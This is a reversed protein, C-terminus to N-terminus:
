ARIKGINEEWNQTEKYPKPKEMFATIDKHVGGLEDNVWAAEYYNGREGDYFKHNLSFYVLRVYNGITVLYEKNEKPINEPYSLWEM